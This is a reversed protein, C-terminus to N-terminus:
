VKASINFWPQPIKEAVQENSFWPQPIKEASEIAKISNIGVLLSLTLISSFVVHRMKM